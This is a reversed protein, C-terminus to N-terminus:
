SRRGAWSVVVVVVVYPTIHIYKNSNSVTRNKMAHKDCRLRSFPVPQQQQYRNVAEDRWADDGTIVDWLIIKCCTSQFWRSIFVYQLIWFQLSQNACIRSCQPCRPGTTPPKAPYTGAPVDIRLQKIQLCMTYQWALPFNLNHLREGLRQCPCKEM